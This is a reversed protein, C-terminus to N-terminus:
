KSQFFRVTAKELNKLEGSKCEKAFDCYSCHSGAIHKFYKLERVTDISGKLNFEVRQALKNEVEDKPTLAGMVIEGDRVFHIGSQADGYPEIGKSFLVKYTDLQDQYNRVGAVATPGFKHDLFLVDGNQLQIVLDIVGRYFVDRSPDDQNSTFFGTPEWGRTVGIKLESLFRKVPNKREFEDMRQKFRTISYESRGVGGKEHGDGDMWLNGPLIDAYEKKVLNFSDEVGKGMIVLELIRHAAKGQETIISIPPLEDPKAKLIYKLYFQLPCKTLLKYKSFSWPAMGEVSFDIKEPEQDKIKM